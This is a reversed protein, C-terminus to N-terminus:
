WHPPKERLLREDDGQDPDSREGWGVDVDDASRVPLVPAAERVTETSGSTSRPVERAADERGLGAAGPAPTGGTARRPRRPPSSSM